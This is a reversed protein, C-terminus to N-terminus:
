EERSCVMEVIMKYIGCLSFVQGPARPVAWLPQAMGRACVSGWLGDWEMGTQNGWSPQPALTPRPDKEQGGKLVASLVLLVQHPKVQLIEQSLASNSKSGAASPKLAQM